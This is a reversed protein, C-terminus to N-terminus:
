ELVKGLIQEADKGGLSGGRVAWPLTGSEHPLLGGPRLLELAENMGRIGFVEDGGEKEIREVQDPAVTRIPAAAFAMQNAATHLGATDLTSIERMGPDLFAAAAREFVEARPLERGEVTQKGAKDTVTWPALVREEQDIIRVTGKDGLIDMEVAKDVRCAQSGNFEVFVGERTAFRAFVSDASEIPSARYLEAEVGIPVASVAEAPGALFLAANLFHAASNNMPCDYIFSGDVSLKGAWRNRHYYSMARPWAVTVVIREIGGVLGALLHRKLIWTSPQYMTQFGVFLRKGSAREAARLRAVEDVTGAAPKEMYVPFGAELAQIALPAHLHIGVPLTVIDIEDKLSLLDAYNTVVRAGARALEAGAAKADPDDFITAAAAIKVPAGAAAARNIWLVHRQSFGKVGVIGYRVIRRQAM